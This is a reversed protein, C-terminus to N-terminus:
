DPELANKNVAQVATLLLSPVTENRFQGSGDDFEGVFFLSYHEPHKVFVHEKSSCADIFSRLMEGHSRAFVPPLFAKVAEDYVSFAMLKM